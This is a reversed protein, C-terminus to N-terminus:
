DYTIGLEELTYGKSEEMGKYMTGKEFLPLDYKREQYISYVICEKTKGESKFIYVVKEHFPKLVAKLYEREEETLIPEKYEECLWDFFSVKGLDVGQRYMVSEIAEHLEYSTNKWTKSIEDKYKEINLM